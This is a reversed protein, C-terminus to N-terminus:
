GRRLGRRGCPQERHRAPCRCCAAEGSIWFRTSTSANELKAKALTIGAAPTALLIRQGFVIPSLALSLVATHHWPILLLLLTTVLVNVSCSSLSPSLPFALRALVVGFPKFYFVSFLPWDGDSRPKLSENDIQQERHTNPPSPVTLLARM